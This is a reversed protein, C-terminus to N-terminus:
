SSLFSVCRAASKLVGDDSGASSVTSPQRLRSARSQLNLVPRMANAREYLSICWRWQQIHVTGQIALAWVMRASTRSPSSHVDQM